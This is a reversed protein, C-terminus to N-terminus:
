DARNKDEVNQNQEGKPALAALALTLLAPFASLFYLIQQWHTREYDLRPYAARLIQLSFFIAVLTGLSLFNGALFWRLGGDAMWTHKLLYFYKVPLLVPQVLILFAFALAADTGHGDLLVCFLPLCGLSWFYSVSNARLSWRVSHSQVGALRYFPEEILAALIVGPLGFGPSIVSLGPFISFDLFAAAM